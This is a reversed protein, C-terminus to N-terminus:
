PGVGKASEEVHQLLPAYTEIVRAESIGPHPFQKRLRVLTGYAARADSQDMYYRIKVLLPEPRTRDLDYAKDLHAIARGQDGLLWHLHALEYHLNWLRTGAALSTAESWGDLAAVFRKLDMKDCQGAHIMRDLERLTNITYIGADNFPMRDPMDEYTRPPISTGAKCYIIFKHLSVASKTDPRLSEVLELEKIAANVDGALSYLSALEVHVRPSNPHSEEASFVIKDWSSWTDARQYTAFGYLAPLAVLLAVVPKPSALRDSLLSCGYVVSFFVGFSPLYNRHEFVLELPFVTSEIAHGALFFVIGFLVPWWVRKRAAISLILVATWFVLGLLTTPPSLLSTSVTYDDHFLGMGTGNPVILNKLYFLLVRPETMTREAFTFARGEYGAFVIGPSLLFAILAALAPLGVCVFFFLYLAKRNTASTDFRFVFVEISLLLLPLLAGSEKSLVSAPLWLAIASVILAWGAVPKTNLKGRGIAYALLGCFAFLASLQTMRQVVYLTTSVSLPALLWCAAVALSLAANTRSPDRPRLVAFLRMSLWFTLVGSLLHIMLNTYKFAWVDPGSMAMNGVFTLMSVPRGLPGSSGTFTAQQWSIQGKDFQELIRLNEYDDLLLGGDLGPWYAFVTLLLVLYLSLGPAHQMIFRHLMTSSSEM